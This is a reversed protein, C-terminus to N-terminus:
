FDKVKLEREAYQVPTRERKRGGGGGDGEEDSKKGKRNIRAIKENYKGFDFNTENLNRSELDVNKFEWMRRKEQEEREREVRRWEDEEEAKRRRQAEQKSREKSLIM